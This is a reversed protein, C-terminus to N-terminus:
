IPPYIRLKNVAFPPSYLLHLPDLLYFLLLVIDYMIFHLLTIVGLVRERM